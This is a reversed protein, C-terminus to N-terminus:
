STAVHGSRTARSRRNDPYGVCLIQPSCSADPNSAIRSPTGFSPSTGLITPPSCSSSSSRSRPLLSSRSFSSLLSSRSFSSLSSM